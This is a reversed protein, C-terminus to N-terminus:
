AASSTDISAAADLNEREAVAVNFSVALPLPFCPMHPIPLLMQFVCSPRSHFIIKVAENRDTTSSEPLLEYHM